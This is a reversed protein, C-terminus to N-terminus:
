KRSKKPRRVNPTADVQDCCSCSRKCSRGYGSDSERSRLGYSSRVTKMDSGVDASNVPPENEDPNVLPTVSNNELKRRKVIEDTEEDTSKKTSSTSPVIVKRDMDYM